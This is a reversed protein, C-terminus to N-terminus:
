GLNKKKFNWYMCLSFYPSKPCTRKRINQFTKPFYWWNIAESQNFLVNRYITSNTGLRM